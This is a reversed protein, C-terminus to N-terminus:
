NLPINHRSSVNAKSMSKKLITAMKIFNEGDEVDFDNKILGEAEEICKEPLDLYYYMKALNYYASYRMKKDGKSDSNYKQKLSHMYDILPQLNSRLEDIPVNSKMTTFLMKVAQIAEQQTAYEPHSKSDLIWLFEGHSEPSFGYLTNIRKNVINISENSFSRLTEQFFVNSNKTFNEEAAKYSSFNPSVFEYERSLTGSLVGNSLPASTPATTSVNALFRNNAKAEERKKAAEIEEKTPPPPTYSGNIVFRGVGQYNAKARYTYNRSTVKGDKDKTTEVFEEIKMGRFLFDSLSLEVGVKPNQEVKKWGYIHIKDYLSAESIFNSQIIGGAIAKVGYTREEFITPESPLDQYETVFSFRDLDVKQAYSRSLLLALGVILYHKKM